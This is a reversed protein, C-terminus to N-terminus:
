GWLRGQGEPRYLSVDQFHFHITTLLGLCLALGWVPACCLVFLKGCQHACNFPSSQLSIQPRSIDWLYGLIQGTRYIEGKWCWVQCSGPLGAPSGPWSHQVPVDNGWFIRYWRINARQEPVDAPCITAPCPEPLSAAGACEFDERKGEAERCSLPQNACFGHCGPWCGRLWSRAGEGARSAKTQQQCM